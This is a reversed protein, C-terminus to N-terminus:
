GHGTARRPDLAQDRASFLRFAIQAAEICDVTNVHMFEERSASWLMLQLYGAENVQARYLAALGLRFEVAKLLPSSM